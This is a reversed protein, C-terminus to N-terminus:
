HDGHEQAEEAVEESAEAAEAPEQEAAAAAEAAAAEAAALAEAEAKAAAETEAESAALKEKYGQLYEIRSEIMAKEREDMDLRLTEQLIGLAAAVDKSTGRKVLVNAKYQLVLAEMSDLRSNVADRQEGSTSFAVARDLEAQIKELDPVGKGGIMADASDIFYDFAMPLVEEAEYVEKIEEPVAAGKLEAILDSGLPAFSGQWIEIGNKVPKIYYKSHNDFSYGVILLLILIFGAAAYKIMKEMPDSVETNNPPPEDYSVTVKPSEEKEEPAAPETAKEPEAPAEPEPVPEPEAPEPTKEAEPEKAPEPAPAKKEPDPEAPQEPAPPIEFQRFMIEKLRAAEQKDDTSIIPPATYDGQKKEAPKERGEVSMPEHFKRAMIEKIDPPEKPEEEKAPAAEQAPEEAAKEEVPKEEPPEPEAAPERKEVPTTLDIKRFLLKKLWAAEEEDETDILPPASYNPAEIEPVTFLKDAPLAQFFKRAMVEKLDATEAAAEEEAPKQEVPKEAKEEEPEEKPAPEPQKAPERTEVPTTLDIKRFLLKKLWAAEEEDETDILPPASYNPAEIEPVTFLKDAPLPQFFKRAMVEKYDAPEAAAEEEAPKQEVPKEAKKQAPEKEPAPEPLNAPERTEVPTTLDIKRFLLKKLWAAEEEDETDILPPASYKPAEIESVTFLKDAPLPQFFKRAMVEKYDAPEAAAEKEVPKQEVPKEAKKQAPEKEPAPEPLNAPERTEVPTTLDIKRFLLKQLWAAEEKDQSSILPPATFERKEEPAKFLEAPTEKEFQKFLIEKLTPKKQPAAKKSAAKKGPAAKKAAAKKAAAKKGPAAKKAAAKKAAAKKAPAAKKTAPGSAAKKDEEKKKAAAKKKKSTSKILSKKGM